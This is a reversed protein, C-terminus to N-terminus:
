YDSQMYSNVSKMLNKNARPIKPIFTWSSPMTEKRGPLRGRNYVTYQGQILAEKLGIEEISYTGGWSVSSGKPILDLALGLAEDKTEVFYGEMNRSQLGKIVKEAVKRNREKEFSLMVM